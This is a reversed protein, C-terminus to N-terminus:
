SPLAGTTEYGAEHIAGAILAESAASHVSVTGAGVNVQVAASPDVSKIAKTIAESCYGCTMGAVNFFHM